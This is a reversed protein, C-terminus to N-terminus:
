PIGSASVHWAHGDVRSTAADVGHEGGEPQGRLSSRSSGAAAAATRTARDGVDGVRARCRRPAAAGLPERRQELAPMTSRRPRGAADHQREGASTARASRPAPRVAARAGRAGARAPRPSGAEQDGRRGPRARALHLVSPRRSPSTLAPPLAAALQEGVQDLLALAVQQPQRGSAQSSGRSDAISPPPRGPPRTRTPPRPRDVRQPRQVLRGLHQLGPGPLALLDPDDGLQRGPQEDDAGGVRDQGLREPKASSGRSSTRWGAMTSRASGATRASSPGPWRRQGVEVGPPRADVEAAAQQALEGGAGLVLLDGAGEPEAQAGHAAPDGVQHDLEAHVRPELGADLRRPAAPESSPRCDPLLCCRRVGGPEVRWTRHREPGYIEGDARATSRRAPCRSRRARPPLRRRRARPAHGRPGAEAAYGLQGAPRDRALDDRRGHRREPDAEPTLETGGGVSAGNGVAVM